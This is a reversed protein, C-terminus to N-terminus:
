PADAGFDVPGITVGAPDEGTQECLKAAIERLIEALLPAAQPQVDARCM